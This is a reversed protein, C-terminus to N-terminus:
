NTYDKPKNWFSIAYYILIPATSYLLFETIDYFFFVFYQGTEYQTFPYFESRKIRSEVESGNLVWLTFHLLAWFIYIAKLRDKIQQKM